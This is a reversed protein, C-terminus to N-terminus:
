ARASELVRHLRSLGSTADFATPGSLRLVAFVAHAAKGNADLPIAGTRAEALTAEIADAAARAGELWSRDVGLTALDAVDRPYQGAAYNRLKEAVVASEDRSLDVQQAEVEFVVGDTNSM